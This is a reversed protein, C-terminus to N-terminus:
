QKMYIDPDKNFFFSLTMHKTIFAKLESSSNFKETINETIEFMKLQNDAIFVVKYLYYDSSGEEIVNMFDSENVKSIHGTYNTLNYKEDSSSYENKVIKFRNNDAKEIMYYTPNEDDIDGQKIWKGFLSKPPKVGAEDIPVPSQYPCGWFVVSLFVLVLAGLKGFIQKQKM